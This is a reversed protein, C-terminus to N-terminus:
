KSRETLMADAFQYAEKVVEGPNVPDPASGDALEGSSLMGQLAMGAFWDRLDMGEFGSDEASQNVARPFAAGGRTTM